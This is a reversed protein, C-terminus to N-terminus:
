WIAHLRESVSRNADTRRLIFDRITQLSQSDRSEFGSYEHVTLRRNNGPDFGVNIDSNGHQGEPAAKKLLLIRNAFSSLLM